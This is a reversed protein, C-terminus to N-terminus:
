LNLHNIDQDQFRNVPISGPYFLVLFYRPFVFSMSGIAYVRHCQNERPEFLCIHFLQLFSSTKTRFTRHLTFFAQIKRNLM